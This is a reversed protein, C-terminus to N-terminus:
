RTEQGAARVRKVLSGLVNAVLEPNDHNLHHGGHEAVVHTSNTSLTAMENQMVTWVTYFRDRRRQWRPSFNPDIRASTLIALPLDGLNGALTATERCMEKYALMEKADGRRQRARLMDKTDRLGLDRSLRRLGLPHMWMYAISALMGGPYDRWQIKPLRKRQEPHSSDILALGAVEDPYMKVFARVVFGGISHGALVYPPEVDAAHLLAHLEEAMRVTTRRGRAVDSYGLGARDYVCVGTERSIRRQVDQWEAAVAGLAPCIVVPPSGEGACVIHLRYGDVDVLRGPPPHKRRDQAEGAAQYAASALGLGAITGAFIVAAHRMTMIAIRASLTGSQSTWASNPM